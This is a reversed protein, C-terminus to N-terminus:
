YSAVVGFFVRNRNYNRYYDGEFNVQSNISDFYYSVVGSLNRTFAYGLTAGVSWWNETEGNWTGGVFESNQYTALVTGTLKATIAHSLNAYFATSEQNLVPSNPDFGIADTANARHIVGVQMKSNAAYAYSLNADLFPSVQTEADYNVWDQIQAGAKLSGTFNPSFSHEVGGYAFYTRTNRITSNPNSSDNVPMGPFFLGLGSNYDVNGAKAGVLAITTPKLLYKLDLTGYNEMRDLRAAYQDEEFSYLLNQYGVVASWRPCIEVSLNIGGDNAINNGQIRGTQGTLVQSANQFLQFNDRVDLSMRPSFNHKFDVDFNASQQWNSGLTDNGQADQTDFFYTAGYGAGLTLTSADWVKTYDVSPAVYIGWSAIKGDGDPQTNINSDYFGQTTLSVTWPKSEGEAVLVSLSAGGLSLVGAAYILKKM